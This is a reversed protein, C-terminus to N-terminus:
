LVPECGFRLDTRITVVGFFVKVLRCLGIGDLTRKAFISESLPTAKRAKRGKAAKHSINYFNAFSHLTDVAFVCLGCFPVLGKKYGNIEKTDKADKRNM